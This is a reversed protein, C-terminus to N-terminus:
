ISSLSDSKSKFKILLKAQMKREELLRLKGVKQLNNVEQIRPSVVLYTKKLKTLVLFSMKDLISSRWLFFGLKRLGGLVGERRLM